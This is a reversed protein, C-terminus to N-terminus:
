IKASVETRRRGVKVLVEISYLQQVLIKTARSVHCIPQRESYRCVIEEDGDNVVNEIRLVDLVKAHVWRQLVRLDEGDGDARRARVGHYHKVNVVKKAITIRAGHVNSTSISDGGYNNIAPDSISSSSFTMTVKQNNGRVRASGPTLTTGSNTRSTTAENAGVRERKHRTMRAIKIAALNFKTEWTKLKDYRDKLDKEKNILAAADDLTKHIELDRRINELHELLVEFGGFALALELEIRAGREPCKGRLQLYKGKTSSVIGSARSALREVWHKNRISLKATDQICSALRVAELLNRPVKSPDRDHALRSSGPSLPSSRPPM